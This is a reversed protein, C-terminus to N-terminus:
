YNKSRDAHHGAELGADACDEEAAATADGTSGYFGLFGRLLFHEHVGAGLDLELVRGLGGGARLYDFFVFVDVREVNVDVLRGAGAVLQAFDLFFRALGGLVGGELRSQLTFFLSLHHLRHRWGNIVVERQWDISRLSLLDRM